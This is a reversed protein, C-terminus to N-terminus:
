IVKKRNKKYNDDVEKMLKAVQFFADIQEKNRGCKDRLMARCEEDNKPLKLKGKM